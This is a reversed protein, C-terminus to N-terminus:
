RRLYRMEQFLWIARRPYRSRAAALLDPDERMGWIEVIEKRTLDGRDMERLMVIKDPFGFPLNEHMDRWQRNIGLFNHIFIGLLVVVLLRNLWFRWGKGSGLIIALPPVFYVPFLSGYYYSSDLVKLHKGQVFTEVALFVALAALFRLVIIKRGRDLRSFSYVLYVPLVLSSFLILLSRSPVGPGAAFQARFLNVTNTLVNGPQFNNWLRETMRETVPYMSQFFVSKWYNYEGHGLMRTIVPVIFTVTFLFLVLPSLYWSIGIILDRFSSGSGPSRGTKLVAPFLLPVTLFLVLSSEDVTFALFLTVLLLGRYKGTGPDPGVRAAFLLAALALLVLLPKAPHFLLFVGSLFGTSLFYLVTGAWATEERGAIRKLLCYCVLPSLILTLLAIPSLGPPPPFFAYLTLRLRLGATQFAYSLFRARVIEDFIWPNFVAAIFSGRGALEEGALSPLHRFAVEPHIWATNYDLFLRVVLVLSLIFVAPYFWGGTKLTNRLGHFLAKSM